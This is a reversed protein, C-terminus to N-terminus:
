RKVYLKEDETMEYVGSFLTKRKKTTSKKGVSLSLSMNLSIEKPAKEAEKGGTEKEREVNTNEKKATDNSNTNSSGNSNSNSCNNILSSHAAALAYVSVGIESETTSLLPDYAPSPSPSPSPSLSPLSQKQSKKEEARFFLFMIHQCLLVIALCFCRPCVRAHARVCV